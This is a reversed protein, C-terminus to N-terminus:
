GFTAAANEIATLKELLPLDEPALLGQDLVIWATERAGDGLGDVFRLADQLYAFHERTEACDFPSRWLLTAPQDFRITEFDEHEM